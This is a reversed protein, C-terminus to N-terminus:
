HTTDPLTRLNQELLSHCLTLHNSLMVPEISMLRLLSCSLTFSLSAQRAATWPTAWLRVHSLTQVVVVLQLQLWVGARPGAETVAAATLDGPPLSNWGRACFGSWVALNPTLPGRCSQPSEKVFPSMHGGCRRSRAELKGKPSHDSCWCAKWFDRHAWGLACFSRWRRSLVM